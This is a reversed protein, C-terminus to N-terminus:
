SWVRHFFRHFNPRAAVAVYLVILAALTSKGSKKGGSFLLETYRLHGDPMREFAHRLFTKQEPYLRFPAATEPDVCIHEIFEIPDRRWRAIASSHHHHNM